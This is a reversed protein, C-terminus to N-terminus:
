HHRADPLGLAKRWSAIAVLPLLWIIRSGYRDIPGSFEGAVIGNLLLAFAITILLEVPLWQGDRALLIAIMACYFVSFIVVGVHLRNLSDLHALEGRSQRSDLYAPFDAPYTTQLEDTPYKKHAYSILLSGTKIRTMQEFTNGIAGKLTWLPYRELTGAVIELGEDREELWDLHQFPGEPAWLFRWNEMPLRDLYGCLTYKRSACNERLYAVAPGDEVLRALQFAYGGPSFSMVGLTLYNAIVITVFALAIVAAPLMLHPVADPARKRLLVRMAFGFLLLGTAIPLHSYHAVAALFTLGIMYCREWRGLREFCFALLFLCLVLVGTFIDAMVFGANWPLSTLMSMLVTVILFGTRSAIAFVERLLIRLLYAVLLSQVLVVTWLSGTLHAPYVFLSYFISRYSFNVLVLYGATDPWVLPYRNYFAIGSLLLTAVLLTAVEGYRSRENLPTRM